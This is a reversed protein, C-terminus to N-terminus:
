QSARFWLIESTPDRDLGWAAGEAALVFAFLAAPGPFQLNMSRKMRLPRPCFFKFDVLSATMNTNSGASPAEQRAAGGAVTEANRNAANRNATLGVDGDYTNVNAARLDFGIVPKV